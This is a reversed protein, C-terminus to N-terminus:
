VLLLLLTPEFSSVCAGSVMIKGIQLDRERIVDQLRTIMELDEDRSERQEYRDEMDHISRPLLPPFTHTLLPLPSIPM